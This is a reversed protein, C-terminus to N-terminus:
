LNGEKMHQLKQRIVTDFKETDESWMEVLVMVARLGSFKPNQAMTQMSFMMAYDFELNADAM